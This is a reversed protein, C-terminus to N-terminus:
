KGKKKGGLFGTMIDQNHEARSKQRTTGVRQNAIQKAFDSTKQGSWTARLVNAKQEFLEDVYNGVALAMEEGSTGNYILKRM